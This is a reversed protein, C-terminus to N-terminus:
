ERSKQKKKRHSVKKKNIPKVYYANYLALLTAYYKDEYTEVQADASELIERNTKENGNRNCIIIAINQIMEMIWMCVIEEDANALNQSNWAYDIPALPEDEKLDIRKDVFYYFYEGIYSGIDLKDIGFPSRFPNDKCIPEFVNPTDNWKLNRYREYSRHFYKAGEYLYDRGLNYKRIDKKLAEICDNVWIQEKISKMEFGAQKLIENRLKEPCRCFANYIERTHKDLRHINAAIVCWPLYDREAENDILFLKAKEELEKHEQTKTVKQIEKEHRLQLWYISFSVAITAILSLSGIIIQIIDTLSM